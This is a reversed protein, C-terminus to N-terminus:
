ILMNIIDSSTYPISYSVEKKAEPKKPVSTLEPTKNSSKGYM